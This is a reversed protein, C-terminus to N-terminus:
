HRAAPVAPLDSNFIDATILWRGDTERRRIELFKGHDTAGSEQVAQYTGRVYALDGHGNIEIVSAIFHSLPPQQKIFTRIAARGQVMMQNPPMLTANEVYMAAAQSDRHMVVYATFSDLSARMESKDTDLLVQPGGASGCALAGLGLVCAFMARM